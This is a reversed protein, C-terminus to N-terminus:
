NLDSLVLTTLGGSQGNLAAVTRVQGSNFSLSTTSLLISKTSPVTFIVQYNGAAVTTYGTASPVTVNSYTPSVGAIDSGATVIYVDITSLNSAGNIIRLSINGSSPTTRSDTVVLAANSAAPNALVTSYSGSNLKITEDVFPSGSGSAEIQLHPSGSSVSAYNSVAAYAVGSAVKKSDILMDINSQIPVSNVLRINASSSGCGTSVLIVCSVGISVAAISIRRM